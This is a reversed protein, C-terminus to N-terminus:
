KGLPTLRAANQHIYQRLLQAAFVGVSRAGIRAAHQELAEWEEPLLCISKTATNRGTGSGKPRGAGPRAGGRGHKENQPHNDM